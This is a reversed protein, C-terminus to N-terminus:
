PRASSPDNYDLAFVQLAANRIAAADSGGDRAIALVINALRTRATDALTADDGYNAAINAWAEDFAQFVVRLQDPGFAANEIIQRAKM